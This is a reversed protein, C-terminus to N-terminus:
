SLEEFTADIITLSTKYYEIDIFCLTDNNTDSRKM